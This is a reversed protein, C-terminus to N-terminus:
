ETRTPARGTAQTVLAVLAPDSAVQARLAARISDVRAPALGQLHATAQDVKIDVYKDVDIEGARLRELPTATAPAVQGARSAEVARERNVEFPKDASKARDVGGAGGAGEAGPAAPPPASGKGIREIGMITTEM